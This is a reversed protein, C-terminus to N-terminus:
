VGSKESFWEPDESSHAGVGLAPVGEGCRQGRRELSTLFFFFFFCFGSSDQEGQATEPCRGTKM